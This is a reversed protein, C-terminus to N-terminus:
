KNKGSGVFSDLRKDIRDFRSDLNDFGNNVTNEISDIRKNISTIIGQYGIMENQFGVELQTIRRDQAIWAGLFGMLILVWQGISRWDLRLKEM